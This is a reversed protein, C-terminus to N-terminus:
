RYRAQFWDQEYKDYFLMIQFSNDDFMYKCNPM